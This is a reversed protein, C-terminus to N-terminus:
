RSKLWQNIKGSIKIADEKSVNRHTPLNLIEKSIKESVPCQNKYDTLHLYKKPAIPTDYWIDSIYVGYGKLYDILAKRNKVFIPFRLNSSLSIQEVLKKSLISQSIKEAYVSAILRRHDENVKLNNLENYALKSYWDPLGHMGATDGMPLSLLNLKKLGAHIIKGLGFPYLKRIKYTFRPYFRDRIQQSNKVPQLKEPQFNKYKESRIILAGGSVADIIKDQSFSLAVFDGVSGAEVRSKYITGASHALDEILFINKQKCIKNIEEAECPYGLTNQIILVKIDPNEKLHNQFAEASFNLDNDSVDIYTVSYGADVVAKYVAYCTFGNIAVKTKPPLKLSRLAAEIAERGKYFLLAKGGYKEELFTKLKASSEGEATLSKLIFKLDYNSGLSNFINM